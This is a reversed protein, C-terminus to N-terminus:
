SALLRRIKTLLRAFVIPKTEFDDCGAAYAKARDEPMTHASLAIVPIRRTAPNQKLLRIAEYGDIVPLFLDMLVLDPADRTAIQVGQEGDTAVIIDLDGELELWTKLLAVNDDNDEVCLITPM